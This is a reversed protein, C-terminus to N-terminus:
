HQIAQIHRYMHRIIFYHDAVCLAPSLDSFPLWHCGTIQNMTANMQYGSIHILVRNAFTRKPHDYISSFRFTLSSVHEGLLSDKLTDIRDLITMHNPLETTPLQWQSTQDNLQAPMMLIHHGCVVVLGLQLRNSNSAELQYQNLLAQYDAHERYLDLCDMIPKPVSQSVQEWAQQYLWTRIKSADIHDDTEYFLKDWNSFLKLYCDTEEKRHALIAVSGDVLVNSLVAQVHQLWAPDDYWYDDLYVWRIKELQEPTLCASIMAQRQEASWPNQLTGVQNNSGLVLILQRCHSLGYEVLHHHGHHFPQFRGILVLQDYHQTM